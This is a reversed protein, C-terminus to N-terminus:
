RVGVLAKALDQMSIPKQLLAVGEDLVGHRAVIDATYGSMLIVPLAPRLERLRDRLDKGSMEPMVVDTLVVDIVVDDRRAVALAESPRDAAIVTCGLADLMASTANRVLPDDEVVLVTGMVRPVTQEKADAREVWEVCRPFFLEFRTGHGPESEARIAGGNQAVIGYVTALGLGTGGGGKTSFFPEFIQALTETDMGVGDDRVSLLVYDGPQLTNQHAREKELRANSTTLTLTGGSPMADRANVALNMVIQDVQSPDLKVPWLEDGPAFALEIHEGILRALPNQMAGILENLCLPRPSIIQNRSLALLQRTLDRARFSANAIEEVFHAVQTGPEVRAALIQSYATIVALVNNFDHAVGGALRGISELKQAQYLRRQLLSREEDAVKRDTIDIIAGVTRVARGEAFFTQSRTLTWRVGGDVRVVRREVDFKGDGSPDYARLVRERIRERDEPHLHALFKELTAPEDADFGYIERLRPSWYIHGTVHDHDFIGIDAVRIAQKLREESERLALERLENEAVMPDDTFRM